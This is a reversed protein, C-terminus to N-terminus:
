IQAAADADGASTNEVRGNRDAGNDVGNEEGAEQEIEIEQRWRRSIWPRVLGYALYSVFLISPMWQWNKVTFAAVLISIIVWHFSRRTRWNISKFSPYEINSVMLFSLLVMLIALGYKWNGIEKNAGDLWLLLLTLSAIVGAAAPIPCGRFHKSSSKDDMAALCNFRALRMAGCVLYASAIFSGLGAPRDISKLVIDHVLLAPAIGFSVIDALSDLERGFPSEQGGLRALRGDLVDFLCAALIAIIAFYYHDTDSATRGSFIQLIAVFGSLINGATMMTPLVYIRPERDSM